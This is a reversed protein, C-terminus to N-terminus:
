ESGTPAPMVSCASRDLCPSLQTGILSPWPDIPRRSGCPSYLRRKGNHSSCTRLRAYAGPWTLCPSSATVLAMLYAASGNSTSLCLCAPCPPSKTMTLVSVMKLSLTAWSNSDRSELRTRNPSLESKNPRLRALFAAPTAVYNIPSYDSGIADELSMQIMDLAATDLLMVYQFCAPIGAAGQLMRLWENLGNLTCFVILPISNPHIFLQTFVRRFSRIGLFDLRGGPYGLRHRGAELPGPEIQVPAIQIPLTGPPVKIEFPHLSFAGCDLKSSPFFLYIFSIRTNLSHRASLMSLALTGVPLTWHEAISSFIRM